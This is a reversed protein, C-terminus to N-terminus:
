EELNYVAKYKRYGFYGAVSLLILGFGVLLATRARTKNLTPSGGLHSESSPSPTATIGFSSLDIETSEV